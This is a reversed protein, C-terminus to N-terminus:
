GQGSKQPFIVIGFGRLGDRTRFVVQRRQVNFLISESLGDPQM